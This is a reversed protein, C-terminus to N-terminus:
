APSASAPPPKDLLERVRALLATTHFPKGIFPTDPDLVGSHAIFDDTYGSMYLVRLSPRLGSLRDYLAKGNMGPMVVDTLLLDIDLGAELRAM